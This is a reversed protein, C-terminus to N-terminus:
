DGAILKEIQERVDEIIVAPVFARITNYYRGDKGKESPMSVFHNEKGDKIFEVYTMSNVFIKNDIIGNFLIRTKSKDPSVYTIKVVELKEIPELKMENKKETNIM